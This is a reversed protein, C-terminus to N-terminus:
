YEKEGQCNFETLSIRFQKLLNDLCVIDKHQMKITLKAAVEGGFSKGSSKKTKVIQKGENTLFVRVVRRDGSDRRRRVYGDRELRDVLGTITSSSLGMRESLNGLTLGDQLYLKELAALQSGSLHWQSAFYQYSEYLAWFITQFEKVVDEALARVPNEEEPRNLTAVKTKQCPEATEGAAKNRDVLGEVKFKTM